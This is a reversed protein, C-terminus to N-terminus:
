SKEKLFTIFFVTKALIIIDVRFKLCQKDLCQSLHNSIQLDFIYWLHLLSSTLNDIIITYLIKLKM